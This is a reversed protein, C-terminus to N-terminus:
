NEHDESIYFHLSELQFREVSEGSGSAFDKDNTAGWDWPKKYPLWYRLDLTNWMLGELSIFSPADQKRSLFARHISFRGLQVCIHNEFTTNTQGMRINEILKESLGDLHILLAIYVHARLGLVNGRCEACHSVHYISLYAQSLFTIGRWTKQGLPCQVLWFDFCAVRTM